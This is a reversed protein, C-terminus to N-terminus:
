VYKIIIVIKHKYLSKNKCIGISVTRYGGGGYQNPCVCLAYERLGLTTVLLIKRLVRFSPSMHIRPQILVVTKQPALRHLKQYTDVIRRFM